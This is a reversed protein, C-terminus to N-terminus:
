KRAAAFTRASHRVSAAGAARGSRLHTAVSVSRCDNSRRLGAAQFLGCALQKPLGDARQPLSLGHRAPPRFRVIGAPHAPCESAADIGGCCGCRPRVLRPREQRGHAAISVQQVPSYEGRHHDKYLNPSRVTTASHARVRLSSLRVIRDSGCCCLGRRFHLDAQSAAM